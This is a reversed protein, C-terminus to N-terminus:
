QVVIYGITKIHKDGNDPSVRAGNGCTNSDDHFGGTGYGIRFDCTLCANENNATIGIRAKSNSSTGM